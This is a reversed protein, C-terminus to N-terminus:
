RRRLRRGRHGPGARRASRYSGDFRPGCDHGLSPVVRWRRSELGRGLDDAQPTREHRRCSLSSRRQAPHSSSVKATSSPGPLLGSWRRPTSCNPPRTSTGAELGGMGRARGGVALLRGDALRIVAFRERSSKLDPASDFDRAPELRTATPTKQDAPEEPDPTSAAPGACALAVAALVGVAVLRWSKDVCAMTRLRQQVPDMTSEGRIASRWRIVGANYIDRRRCDRRPPLSKSNARAPDVFPTVRKRPIRACNCRTPGAPRDHGPGVTAM